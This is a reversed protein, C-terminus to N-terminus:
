SFELVFNEGFGASFRRKNNNLITFKPLNLKTYSILITYNYRGLNTSGKIPYHYCRPCM